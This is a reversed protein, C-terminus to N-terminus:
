KILRLDAGFKISAVECALIIKREIAETSLNTGVWWGDSIRTYAHDKFKKSYLDDRNRAVFQRKKTTNKPHKSLKKLFDPDLEHLHKLVGVLTEKGNTAPHDEGNLVFGMLRETKEPSGTPQKAPPVRSSSGSGRDKSHHGGTKSPSRGPSRSGATSYADGTALAKFFATVDEQDPRVGESSLVEETLLDVLMADPEDLLRLWVDPLRDRAKERKKAVELADEARRRAKGSDVEPKYLFSKLVDASKGLDTNGLEISAFLRDKPPGAAMSLYFDWCRGDTLLLLPVGQNVAYDFLQREADVSLNGVRKVEVFVNPVGSVVLAYDVKKNKVPFEPSVEEPDADDWGLQRLVPVVASQRVQAESGLRGSRLHQVIKKLTTHLEVM